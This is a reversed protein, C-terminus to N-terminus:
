KFSNLLTDFYCDAVQQSKVNVCVDTSSYEERGKMHESFYHITQGEALGEMIVQVNGSITKYYEPHIAYIFAQLDHPRMGDLGYRTKAYSIYHQIIRFLLQNRPNTHKELQILRQNDLLVEHTVDLGVMTLRLGCNFVIQASHPDRHINAEAVPSKNGVHSNCLTTGGMIVVNKILPIIAPALRCALALNTLPGVAIISIEGPNARVTDIIFQAAHRPDCQGETNVDFADGLGNKGHAVVSPPNPAIVLPTACGRAIPCTIGLKEKLFLANKTTIDITNNGFITTIGVLEIDRSEVAFHLAVADDVGPDTDYIAKIM